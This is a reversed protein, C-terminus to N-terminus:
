NAVTDINNDDNSRIEIIVKHPLCIIKEGNKNIKKQNVCHKDPCDAEIVDAYGDHIKLVNYNDGNKITYEIDESLSFKESEVGDIILVAVDGKDNKGFTFVFYSIVVIFVLAFILILDRKKM